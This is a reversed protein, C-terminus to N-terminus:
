LMYALFAVLAKGYRRQDVQRYPLEALDLAEHAGHEVVVRAGADLVGASVLHRLTVGVWGGEYPPDMFVLNFIEPWGKLCDLNHAINWRLLTARSTLELAEINKRTIALAQPHCDLLLASIAGRSLAELGLAGTGTYLDLVRTPVDLPGLINFMAERVRDATPRITNDRPALLRRGRHTGAVIRM